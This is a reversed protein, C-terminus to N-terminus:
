SFHALADRFAADYEGGPSLMGASALLASGVKDFVVCAVFAVIATLLMRRDRPKVLVAFGAIWLADQLIGNPVGFPTLVLFLVLSKVGRARANTFVLVFLMLMVFSIGLWAGPYILVSKHGQSLSVPTGRLWTLLACFLGYAWVVWWYLLDSHQYVRLLKGEGQVATAPGPRQQGVAATM